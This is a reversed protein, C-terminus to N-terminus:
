VPWSRGDVKLLAIESRKHGVCAADEALCSGCVPSGELERHCARCVFLPIEAAIELEIGGIAEEDVESGYPWPGVVLFEFVRDTKSSTFRVPRSELLALPPDAETRV